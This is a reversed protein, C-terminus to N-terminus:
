GGYHWPTDRLALVPAGPSVIEEDVIRALFLAHDGERNAEEVVECEVWAPAAGFLPVGRDSLGFSYGGLKEGAAEHSRFFAQAFEPQHEGVLHLAFRRSHQVADCIATGKRLAVAVLRPEFSVQTVWSVTAARPGSEGNAAAVFLGYNFMHLVARVTETDPM